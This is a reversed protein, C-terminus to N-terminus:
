SERDLYLPRSMRERWRTQRVRQGRKMRGTRAPSTDAVGNEFSNIAVRLRNWSSDTRDGDMSEVERCLVMRLELTLLLFLCLGM